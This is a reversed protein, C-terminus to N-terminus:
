AMAAEQPRSVEVEQTEDAQSGENSFLHYPPTQRAEIILVGEPSLSAFVALPDVDLPIQIKKTFNKTVIGGEEQKEEHKGSVEVFGDRTKVNLEEPKFSHVNVCVKWPEGGASSCSSSSSSTAITTPSSRSSPEGYRSTYLAPGGTSHRPPFGTRLTSSFPSPSLRSSLRGPRAWGPWEMGLEDPFPPMGFEDDMFRSALQDRFPSQERFPSECFPDRPFRQRNGMTYFDGEAM